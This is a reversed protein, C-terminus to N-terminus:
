LTQLHKHLDSICTEIDPTKTPGIDMYVNLAIILQRCTAM